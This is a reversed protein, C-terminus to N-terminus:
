LVCNSQGKVLLPWIWLFYFHGILSSEYVECYERSGSDNVSYHDSHRSPDRPPTEHDDTTHVREYQNHHRSALPNLEIGNMEIPSSKKSSSFTKMINRKLFQFNNHFLKMIGIKKFYLRRLYYGLLLCWISYDIIIFVSFLIHQHYSYSLFYPFLLLEIIYKIFECSSLFLKLELSTYPSSVYLNMISWLLKSWIYGQTEITHLQYIISCLSWIVASHIVLISLIQLSLSYTKMSSLNRLQLFERLPLFVACVGIVEVTLIIYM